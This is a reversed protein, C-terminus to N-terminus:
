VVIFERYFGVVQTAYITSSRTAIAIGAPLLTKPAAAVLHMGAVDVQSSCRPTHGVQHCCGSIPHSNRDLPLLEISEKRFCRGRFTGAAVTHQTAPSPRSPQIHAPTRPSQVRVHLLKKGFMVAVARLIGWLHPIECYGGSGGTGCM